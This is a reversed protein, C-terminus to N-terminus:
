CICCCGGISGVFCGSGDSAIYVKVIRRSVNRCNASSAISCCRETSSMIPSAIRRTQNVASPSTHVGGVGGAQHMILLGSRTQCSSGARGMPCRRAGGADTPALHDGHPFVDGAVIGIAEELCASLAEPPRTRREYPLLSALLRSRSKAGLLSVLSVPIVALASRREPKDSIPRPRQFYPSAPPLMASEAVVSLLRAISPGGLVRLRSRGTRM